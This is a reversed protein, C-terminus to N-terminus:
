VTMRDETRTEAGSLQPLTLRLDAGQDHEVFGITGGVETAIKRCVALGIGTGGGGTELREFVRFVREHHEAPVGVGDDLVRIEDGDASVRITVDPKGGYRASNEIVNSFLQRARTPNMWLTPLEGEVLVRVQPHRGVVDQAIAEVLDTLPVPEPTTDVRGVRSLELLDSILEEMYLANSRMRELYFSVEDSVAQQDHGIVDLFGLLALVPTKLDHSASYVFAELEENALEVERRAEQESALLSARALALDALLGLRGLLREEEEGFFPSYRSTWVELDAGTFEARLPPADPPQGHRGVEEGQHDRLVVARAGVVRAVHPLLVDAVEDRTRTNMLKVSARYLEEEEPARWVARLLPPPVFALYFGLASAVSLLQSILGVTPSQAGTGSVVLTLSLIVAGVALTRMRMRVITPQGRGARWLRWTVYGSLVVWYTVFALIFLSFATTRPEGEAPFDGLAVTWVALGIFGLDATRRLITPVPDFAAAFQVIVYPWILIALIVLITVVRNLGDGAFLSVVVAGALSGFGVALWKSARDRQTLYLRLVALGLGIYLLSSLNSIVEVATEM